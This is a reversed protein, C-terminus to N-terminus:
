SGGKLGSSHTSVPVASRSAQTSEINLQDEFARLGLRETAIGRLRPRCGFVIEESHERRGHLDGRRGGSNLIPMGRGRVRLLDQPQSGAPITLDIKGDLTEFTVKTGLAADYM